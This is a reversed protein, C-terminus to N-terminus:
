KGTQRLNKYRDITKQKSKESLHNIISAFNKDFISSLKVYDGTISNTYVLGEEDCFLNGDIRDEIKLTEVVIDLKRIELNKIIEDFEEDSVQYRDQEKRAVSLPFYQYLSWIKVNKCKLIYDRIEPISSLNLRTVITNIKIPTNTQKDLETIISHVKKFLGKSERFKDYEIGISDISIGLLNVYKKIFEIDTKKIDRTNTDVHTFIGNQNASKCANRFSKKAFPDGGGFTIIDFNYETAKNIIEDVRDNIKQHHFDVYCFKCNLNCSQNYSIILRKM